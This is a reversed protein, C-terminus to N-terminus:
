FPIDDEFEASVEHKANVAEIGADTEKLKVDACVFFDNVVIKTYTAEAGDKMYQKVSLKGDIFVKQGKTLKMAKEAQNNYFALNYWTTANKWEVGDKFSNNVAITAKAEKFNETDHREPAKGLRGTIHIKHLDSM